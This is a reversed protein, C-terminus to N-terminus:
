AYDEELHVELQTYFTQTHRSVKTVRGVVGQCRVLDEIQIGYSGAPLYVFFDAMPRGDGTSLRAMRMENQLVRGMGRYVPDLGPRGPQGFTGDKAGDQTPRDIEIEDTWLV